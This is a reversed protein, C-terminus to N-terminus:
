EAFRVEISYEGNEAYEKTKGRAACCEFYYNWVGEKIDIVKTDQLQDGEIEYLITGDDSYIVFYINGKEINCNVKIDIESDKEVTFSNNYVNYYGGFTVSECFINNENKPAVQDELFFMDILIFLITCLLLLKTKRRM